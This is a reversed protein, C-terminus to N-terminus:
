RNAPLSRRVFGSGMEEWVTADKYVSCKVVWKINSANKEGVSPMWSWMAGDDM